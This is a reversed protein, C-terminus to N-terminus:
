CTIHSDGANAYISPIIVDRFNEIYLHNQDDITLSRLGFNILSCETIIKMCQEHTVVQTYKHWRSKTINRQYGKHKEHETKKYSPKMQRKTLFTNGECIYTM